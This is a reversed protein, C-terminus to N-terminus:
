LTQTIKGSSYTNVRRPPFPRTESSRSTDSTMNQQHLVKVSQQQQQQEDYVAEYKMRERRGANVFRCNLIVNVFYLDAAFLSSSEM